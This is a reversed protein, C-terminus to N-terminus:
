RSFAQAAALDEVAALIKALSAQLEM